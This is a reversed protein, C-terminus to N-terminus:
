WIIKEVLSKVKNRVKSIDRNRWLEDLINQLEYKHYNNAPIHAEGLNPKNRM